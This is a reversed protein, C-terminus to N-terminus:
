LYGVAQCNAWGVTIHVDTAPVRMVEAKSPSHTCKCTRDMPSHGCQESTDIRGQSIRRLDLADAAENAERSGFWLKWTFHKRFSISFSFKPSRTARMM